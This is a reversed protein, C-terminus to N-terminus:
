NVKPTRGALIDQFWGGDINQGCLIIGAKSFPRHEQDQILAALPAAGAGEAINQTLNFYLRVAEAILDDSVSVIDEVGQSYIDFSEAVPVRVAMGDAFTIASTTEILRGSHFSQRVCDAQDSVVGIIKTSLGLANRAMITGCVGSGCGIPVYIVDLDSVASLLEYAYTSVGRVLQEHFSPVLFLTWGAAAVSEAELALRMLIGNGHVIVEGGFARMADNKTEANGEPVYIKANLGFQRAALAQSQGHNGRTATVIGTCDPHNRHLWDMFTLGGRIKFAGTPTHNEHKVWVEKGIHLNLRPWTFQPTAPMTKYILNAASQIDDLSLPEM